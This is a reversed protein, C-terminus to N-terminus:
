AIPINFFFTTGQKVKSDYWVDGGLLNILGKVIPLGLGTGGYRRTSSEEGQRFKNFIHDKLATDIGIGTDEIFFLIKRDIDVSAGFRIRGSHTFKLSNDLLCNIIQKLKYGDSKILNYEAPLNRELIITINKKKRKEIRNLIWHHCEELVSLINVKEWYVDMQKAEIKSLDIIENIIAILDETNQSILAQFSAIKEQSLNPKCLLESFGNIANLPTRIEHSINALFVSKLKDSEEAKFKASRLEEEYRFRDDIDFCAGINGLFAGDFDFLPKSVNLVWKYNRQFDMMRYQIAFPKLQGFSENFKNQLNKKDEPHVSYMWGAEIEEMRGRGTFSLWTKNFYDSNGNEDCKWIMSPFDELITLYFDRAKIIKEQNRKRESIDRVSSIICDNGKFVIMRSKIEVPIDTGNKHKLNSEFVLTGSELLEKMLGQEESFPDPSLIDCPRFSTVEDKEFGCLNCISNNIEIFKGNMQNVCIGDNANEFILRITKESEQLSKEYFIRKEIEKELEVNKKQIIKHLDHKYFSIEIAILLEREKYPKLLYAYPEGHKSFQILADDSYASLFIVPADIIKQIEIAAEIGNLKGPLKIDSIIMEPKNELASQIAEEGTSVADTIIYNHAELRQKLDLAIITDDEVILIRRPIQPSSSNM